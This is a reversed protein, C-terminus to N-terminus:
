KCLRKINKEKYTILFDKKKLLCEISKGVSLLLWLIGVGFHAPRIIMGITTIEVIIKKFSFGM